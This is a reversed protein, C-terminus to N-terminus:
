GRPDDVRNRAEQATRQQRRRKGKNEEGAIRDCSPAMTGACVGDKTMAIRVARRCKKCWTTDTKPDLLSSM